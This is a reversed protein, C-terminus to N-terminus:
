RNCYILIVFSSYLKKSALLCVIVHACRSGRHGIRIIGITMRNIICEPMVQIERICPTSKKYKEEMLFWIDCTGSFSRGSRTQFNNEPLHADRKAPSKGWNRFLFPYPLSARSKNGSLSISFLFANRMLKRYKASSSHATKRTRFYPSGISAGKTIAKIM